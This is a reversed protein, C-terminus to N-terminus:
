SSFQRKISLDSIVVRTAPPSQFQVSDLFSLFPTRRPPWCCIPIQYIVCHIGKVKDVYLSSTIRIDSYNEYLDLVNPKFDLISKKKIDLCKVFNTLFTSM